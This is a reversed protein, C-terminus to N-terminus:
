SSFPHASGLIITLNQIMAPMKAKTAILVKFNLYNTIILLTNKMLNSLSLLILRVGLFRNQISTVQHQIFLNSVYM